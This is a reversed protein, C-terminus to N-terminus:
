SNKILTAEIVASGSYSGSNTAMQWKIDSKGQYAFPNSRPLQYQNQWTTHLLIFNVGTVNNMVDVRFNMYKSAGSADGSFLNVNQVYLTYNNAVSYQSMQSKSTTAAMEALQTTGYYATVAGVNTNQGSAAQTLVMSNVRLFQNTTTVVTTGNLTVVESLPAWNADLGQLLVKATSNDSSSTSNISLTQATTLYTYDLGSNEWAIGYTNAINASYGFVNVQTANPIAGLAVQWEFPAAAIVNSSYGTVPLPNSASVIIGDPTALTHAEFLSKNDQMYNNSVKSWQAM